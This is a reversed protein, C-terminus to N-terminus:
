RSAALAVPKLVCPYPAERAATTPDAGLPVLAFRPSPLGAAAFRQRARYKDRSARVAEVPNHPLGLAEAAVAAVLTTDDDVGVIAALPQEAAFAAIQRAAREPHRLDLALTTNPAHRALAQRRESGVVVAVGLRRAAELFAKARYTRTAMLLLVCPEPPAMGAGGGDGAWRAPGKADDKVIGAV